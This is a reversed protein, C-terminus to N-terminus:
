KTVPELVDLINKSSDKIRYRELRIPALHHLKEEKKDETKCIVDNALSKHIEIIMVDNTLDFERRSSFHYLM